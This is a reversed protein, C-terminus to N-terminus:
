CYLTITRGDIICSVGFLLDLISHKLLGADHFDLVEQELDYDNSVGGHAFAVDDELEGFLSEHFPM